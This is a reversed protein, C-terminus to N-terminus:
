LNVVYISLFALTNGLADQITWPLYSVDQDGQVKEALSGTYNM